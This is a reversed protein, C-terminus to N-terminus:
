GEGGLCDRFSTAMDRMLDAYLDPGPELGAGLPDLVNTRIQTGEAITAVIAPEFQPESFICVAGRDRAMDQLESVRAAGPMVDAAITITGAAQLGFRREFYQYGDHFVIFRRDELAALMAGIEASLGDIDALTAAANARYRDAHAPDASSLVDAMHAVLTKANDPDLWIHPDSGGHDHAHDDHGHDDHGHEAHDHTHDDSKAAQDHDDHDHKHDHDHDDAAVKFDEADRFDLTQLGETDMLTVIRADDAIAEIPKELFRELEEGVWFVLDADQMAAAQSPRLSYTHPSGTGDVILDPAGVGEMVSSLLAHIPKISALVRPASSDEAMASAPASVIALSALLVPLSIRM